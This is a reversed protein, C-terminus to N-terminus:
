ILVGVPVRLCGLVFSVTSSESVVFSTTPSKTAVRKDFGILETIVLLIGLKLFVKNGPTGHDTKIQELWLGSFSFVTVQGLGRGVM